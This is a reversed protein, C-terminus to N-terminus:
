MKTETNERLRSILHAAYDRGGLGFALGGALALMAIFGTIVTNIISPAINLQVLSALFGFVVVSWWTLSGLFNASHMRAGKVSAKVVGRLFNGLFAAALMILVAVIVNPIYFVVQGLFSSFAFLNLQDSAALLFGILIFWYTLQGLFRAGRLKLGGREFYPAIELKGLFTDLRIAMFIKEILTGFFAAFILGIILIVLAGILNPLFGSFGLWLNQLSGVIVASLDQIVM